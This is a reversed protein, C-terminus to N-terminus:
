IKPRMLSKVIGDLKQLRIPKELLYDPKLDHSKEKAIADPFGSFLIMPILPHKEKLQRLLKWGDLSPMNIDSIVMEVEPHEDIFSLVSDPDDTAEAYLNEFNMFFSRFMGLIDPDDDVCIILPKLDIKKDSDVPLIVTM